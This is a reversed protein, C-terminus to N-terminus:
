AAGKMRWKRVNKQVADEGVAKGGARKAARTLRAAIEVQTMGQEYLRAILERRHLEALEGQTVRIQIRELERELPTRAPPISRNV